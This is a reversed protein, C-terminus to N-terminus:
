LGKVDLVSSMLLQNPSFYGMKDTRVPLNLDASVIFSTPHQKHRPIPMTTTPSRMGLLAQLPFTGVSHLFLAM